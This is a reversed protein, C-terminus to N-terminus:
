KGSIIDDLFFTPQNHLERLKKENKEEFIHSIELNKSWNQPLLNYKTMPFNWINMFTQPSVTELWIEGPFDVNESAFRQCTNLNKKFIWLNLTTLLQECQEISWMETLM